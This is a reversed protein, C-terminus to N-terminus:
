WTIIYGLYAIQKFWFSCKSAKVKTRCHASQCLYSKAPIYTPFVGRGQVLIDDIFIKVREIYGLLKDLKSQFIYRSSCLGMPVRYYRFKGFETIITKLDCIRPPIVITYQWMNLDLTTYYQFGELQQVMDGIRPFFYLNRVLKWNIM